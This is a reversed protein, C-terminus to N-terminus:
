GEIVPLCSRAAFRRADAETAYNGIPTLGFLGRALLSYGGRENPQLVVTTEDQETTPQPATAIM